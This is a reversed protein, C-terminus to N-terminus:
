CFNQTSYAKNDNSYAIGIGTKTYTNTLINERHGSSSMWSNVICEALSKLNTTSGCGVVNSYIPTQAINEALGYTYYSGYDKRCLYGHREGRETPGEGRLNYHSFFNNEAMDQSHERAIIAIKDDWVLPSLGNKTRQFNVLRHVEKELEHVDIQIKPDVFEKISDEIDKFPKYPEQTKLPQNYPEQEFTNLKVPLYLSFDTKNYFEFFPNFVTNRNNYAYWLSFIFFTLILLRIGNIQRKFINIFEKVIKFSFKIVFFLSILTFISGLNLIWIKISNLKQANSYFVIYSVISVILGLTISILYNLKYDIDYKEHERRLLWGVFSNATGNSRDSIQKPTKKRIRKYKPYKSSSIEIDQFMPTNEKKIIEKYKELGYCKHSEPLRHKICYEQGCFKCIFPLFELEQNCDPFSCKKM